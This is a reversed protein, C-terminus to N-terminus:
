RSAPSLKALEACYGRILIESERWRGWFYGGLRMRRRCIVHRRWLAYLIKGRDLFVSNHKNNIAKRTRGAPECSLLELQQQQKWRLSPANWVARVVARRRKRASWCSRTPRCRTTHVRGGAARASRWCLLRACSSPRPWHGHFTCRRRRSWDTKIQVESTKPTKKPAKILQTSHKQLLQNIILYLCTYICCIIQNQKFTVVM